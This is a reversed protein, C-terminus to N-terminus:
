GAQKFNEDNHLHIDIPPMRMYVSSGLFEHQIVNESKIEISGPSIATVHAHLFNEKSGFRQIIQNNRAEEGNMQFLEHFSSHHWEQATRVYGEDVPNNHIYCILNRAYRDDPVVKRKFNRMFLSGKRSHQKNFGQVYSNCFDAYAKICIDSVPTKEPVQNRVRIMLHYHSPMLCYTLTEWYPNLYEYYKKLFHDYNGFNRFIHEYGNCRNYVHYIQNEIFPPRKEM